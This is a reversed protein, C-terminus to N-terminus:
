KARPVVKQANGHGARDGAESPRERLGYLINDRISGPFLIPDQALFTVRTRLLQKDVKALDISDILIEGVEPVVAALLALALTSKGSGTRGLIATKRVQKCVQRCLPGSTRCKIIVLRCQKEINM